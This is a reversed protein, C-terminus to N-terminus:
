VLDLHGILNSLIMKDDVKLWDKLLTAYISRFDIQYKLDGEDLNQLNPSENFFGPKKLKGGILFVNNATGHDTGGSGNQAVRRGFESFTMVLTENLQNNQKMDQIFTSMAESYQKLLQGQRLKQNIHTDFGSISVYFINTEIGSVILEAITKLKRGLETPPYFAKTKYIKSKDYIYAASSVTEGLTKYLYSVQEHDAETHQASNIDTILRNHTLQYLKQPNSVALGKLRDGKMALSLTDDVEIAKYPQNCYGGCASDLYRGIWGTSLFEDSGSATQWIDMSRFHSRDPNPYGVSNLITLLGDDYLQKMGTLAPNFGLEDSVQLVYQSEIALKPRVKYYIDNRFPIITNLGDNGGSLQIIVLKKNNLGLTNLHQREFAKLFNPILMTGATALASRSLFDRRKM